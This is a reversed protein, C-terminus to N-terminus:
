PTSTAQPSENITVLGFPQISIELNAAHKLEFREKGPRGYKLRVEYKGTISQGPMNNLSMRTDAANFTVGPEIIRPSQPYQTRPPTIDEVESEAYEIFVSIPFHADNRVQMGLQIRDIHRPPMEQQQGARRQLRNPQPLPTLDMAVWSQVFRLKGNPNTRQLHQSAGLVIIIAGAFTLTTAMLIWMLPFDAMYGSIATAGALIMPGALAYLYQGIAHLTEIHGAMELWQRIKGKAM